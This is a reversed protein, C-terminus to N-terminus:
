VYHGIAMLVLAIAQLVIVVNGSTKMRQRLMAGQQLLADKAPGAPAAAAQEMVQVNKVASRGVVSGGIIVAIIGLVGGIGYVMGTTSASVVPDFGGTLRWLLYIGTLATTGGLIAMYKVIGGRVIRTMVMGGSPGSDEVAPMLLVAIFVTSGIWIAAILVHLVRLSLFLLAGM